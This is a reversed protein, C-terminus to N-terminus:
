PNRNRLSSVQIVQRTIPNGDTGVSDPSQLTLQIRAATVDPWRAAATVAAAPVYTAAGDLLYTVTMGTVGEVIEQMQPAGGVLRVQYLAANGAPNNAVLWRSASLGVLVSNPAAYEFVTGAGCNLPLGLGSTCNGPTGGTGHGIKDGVVSSAQFISAQRANCAMVLDGASMGHNTTNVTFEAGATNHASVTVVNDDASLLQVAETGAVREGAAAGFGPGGPLGEAPGFGRFADGWTTLNTWWSGTAGTIVNVVPVNNVCPNGAAERVDRAMMEYSIRASEQVRSLNDTARYTQRNSIFIGIATGVVLLGLVMAIMLEILSLGRMGQPFKIDAAHSTKM